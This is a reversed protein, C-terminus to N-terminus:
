GTKFLLFIQLLFNYGFQIQKETFKKLRWRNSDCPNAVFLLPESLRMAAVGRIQLLNPNDGQYASQATDAPRAVRLIHRQGSRRGLPVSVGGPPFIFLVHLVFSQVKTTYSCCQAKNAVKNDLWTCNALCMELASAGVIWDPSPGLMSVVSM